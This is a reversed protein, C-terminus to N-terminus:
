ANAQPRFARSVAESNAAPSSNWSASNRPPARPIRVKSPSNRDENTTRRDSTNEDIKAFPEALQMLIYQINRSSPTLLARVLRLTAAFEERDAWGAGLRAFLGFLGLTLATRLGIKMDGDAISLLLESVSMAARLEEDLHEDMLTRLAVEGLLVRGEPSPVESAVAEFTSVLNRRITQTPFSSDSM